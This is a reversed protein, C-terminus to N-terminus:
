HKTPRQGMKQVLLIHHPMENDDMVGIRLILLIVQKDLM